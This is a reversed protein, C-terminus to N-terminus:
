KPPATVRGAIVQALQAPALNYTKLLQDYTASHIFQPKGEPTLTNV